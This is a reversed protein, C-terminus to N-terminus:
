KLHFLRLIQFRSNKRQVARRGAYFGCSKFLSDQAVINQTDRSRLSNIDPFFRRRSTYRVESGGRTEGPPIRSERGLRRDGEGPHFLPLTTAVAPRPPVRRPGSKM